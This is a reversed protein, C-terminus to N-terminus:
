EDHDQDHPLRGLIMHGIFLGVGVSIASDAVNFAPWHWSGVFFDLFDVVYGFRLRDVLNGIAGAFILAISVSLWPHTRPTNHYFWVLLGVALSSVALFMIQRVAPPQGALFGFAGGPNHIRTLHFFGSIVPISEYLAMTQRVVAKTLQDAFVVPGAILILPVYRNKILAM